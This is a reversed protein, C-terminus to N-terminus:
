KGGTFAACWEAYAKRSKNARAKTFIKRPLGAVPDLKCFFGKDKGATQSQKGKKIVQRAKYTSMGRYVVEPGAARVSM